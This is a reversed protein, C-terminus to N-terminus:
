NKEGKIKESLVDFLIAVKYVVYSLLIIIIFIGFDQLVRMLETLTM